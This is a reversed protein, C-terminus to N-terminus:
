LRVIGQADSSSAVKCLIPDLRDFYNHGSKGRMYSNPKHKQYLLYAALDAAQVFYSHYSDRFNPDEAIKAIVLNRYGLGFSPQNPVPNYRRMQRFLQRLKKNNTNDPFVMGREDPNVPGPFNRHEITNEFRQILAKWAMSFVDYSADKNSKDVLVNVLSLYSMSALVDAFARLITLRNHRKIRKLEGPRNIMHAAHIEEHMYLGFKRRMRKRFEILGDLCEHWRLEHVVLGSLAFHSAPSGALGDDGSEDTYMFYM